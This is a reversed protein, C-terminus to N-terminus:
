VEDLLEYDGFRQPTTQKSSRADFVSSNPLTPPEGFPTADDAAPPLCPRLPESLQEVKDMADLCDRLEDALEPHGALWESRSPAQGADLASLYAAIVQDVHPDDTAHAESERVM